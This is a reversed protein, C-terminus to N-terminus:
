IKIFIRRRYMWYMVALWFLVNGLAYVLSANVPDFWATLGQFLWAKLSMEGDAGDIKILYFGRALLGSAVFVAIANMGYVIAPGAWARIEKVDILWYCFALFQLAAGSTFIVYSSTWIGKNIPFAIDWFLGAVIALWGAVFMWGAIERRDHGSRLWHGTLIGSLTTAIAPITSLLGEPDWREKWLHGDMLFRDLWAGLNGEASLDGTTGGPVPALALIAWYALLLAAMWLAQGRKGSNLFILSAFFYCVAIRQLVGPVRITSLDYYPFGAMILGLGFLILTRRVVKRYIMARSLTEMQRPFSFAMAVGVIFLFFPFIFDTPTWGHWEAHRLPGYIHSWSGPNNVLIMGAITIGRFADLSVLRQSM